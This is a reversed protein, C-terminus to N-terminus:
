QSTMHLRHSAGVALFSGRCDSFLIANTLIWFELLRLIRLAWHKYNDLLSLGVCLPFCISIFYGYHNSNLFITSKFDIPSYFFISSFHEGLLVMVGTITGTFALIECIWRIQKKSPLLAALFVFGYIFYTLVGDKRYDSGIFSLKPNSSFCASLISWFLLLALCFPLWRDKFWTWKFCNKLNTRYHLSFFQFISLFLAFAGLLLIINIWARQYSYKPALHIIESNFTVKDIINFIMNYIVPFACFVALVVTAFKSVAKQPVNLIFDKASISNAKQLKEKFSTKQIKEM